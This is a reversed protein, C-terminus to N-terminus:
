LGLMTVPWAPECRQMLADIRERQLVWARREATWRAQWRERDWLELYGTEFLLVAPLDSADVETPTMCEVAHSFPKRWAAFRAQDREILDFRVGMLRLRRGPLQIWRTLAEVVEPDDLPWPSFDPDVLTIDRGSAGDLKTFLGRATAIFESRSSVGKREVAEDSM